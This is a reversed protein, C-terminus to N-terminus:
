FITDQPRLQILEPNLGTVPDYLWDNVQVYLGARCSAKSTAVRWCPSRRAVVCLRGRVTYRQLKRMLWRQPGDRRLM